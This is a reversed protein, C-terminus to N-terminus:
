GGSLQVAHVQFLARMMERLIARAVTGADAQPAGIKPTACALEGVCRARGCDMLGILGAFIPVARSVYRSAHRPAQLAV